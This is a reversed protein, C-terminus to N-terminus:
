SQWILSRERADPLIESVVIRSKTFDDRLYDHAILGRPHVGLMELATLEHWWNIRDRYGNTLAMRMVDRTISYFV